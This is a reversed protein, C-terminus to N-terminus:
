ILSCKFFDLYETKFWDHFFCEREKQHHDGQDSALGTIVDCEAVSGPESADALRTEVFLRPLIPELSRVSPDSCKARGIDFQDFGVAVSVLKAWRRLLFLDSSM